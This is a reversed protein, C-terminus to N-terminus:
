GVLQMPPFEVAKPAPLAARTRRRRPLAARANGVAIVLKEVQAKAVFAPTLAWEVLDLIDGLRQVLEEAGARAQGIAAFEERAAVLVEGLNEVAPDLDEIVDVLDVLMDDIGRMTVDANLAASTLRRFRGSQSVVQSAM